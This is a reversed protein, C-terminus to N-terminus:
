FFDQGLLPVDKGPPAVILNESSSDSGLANLESPSLVRIGSEPPPPALYQASPSAAADDSEQRTRPPPEVSPSSSRYVEGSGSASGPAATEEAASEEVIYEQESEPTASVSTPQSDDGIVVEAGSISEMTQPNTEAYNMQVEPQHPAGEPNDDTIVIQGPEPEVFLDSRYEFTETQAPPAANEVVATEENGSQVTEMVEVPVHLAPGGGAVSAAAAEDTEVLADAAVEASGATLGPEAFDGTAASDQANNAANSQQQHMTEDMGSPMAAYPDATTSAAGSSGTSQLLPQTPSESYLDSTEQGNEVMPSDAIVSESPITWDSDDQVAGPVIGSFSAGSGADPSDTMVTTPVQSALSTATTQTEASANFSDGFLPPLPLSIGLPQPLITQPESAAPREAVPAQVTQAQAPPAATEGGAVAFSDSSAFTDYDVGASTTSPESIAPAASPMPSPTEPEYAPAWGPVEAFTSAPTSAPTPQNRMRDPDSSWTRLGSTGTEAFDADSPQSLSDPIAIVASASASSDLTTPSGTSWAPLAGASGGWPSSAASSATTTTAGLGPVALTAASSATEGPLPATPIEASNAVIGWAAMIDAQNTATEAPFDAIPASASAPSVAVATSPFLAKNQAYWSSWRQGDLGFDQGTLRQLSARATETEDVAIQDPGLMMVGVLFDVAEPYDALAALVTKRVAPDTRCANQLDIASNSDHFKALALAAERRVVPDPDGALAKELASRGALAPRGIEGLAWAAALRNVTEQNIALIQGVTGAAGTLKAYGILRIYGDLPNVQRQLAQDAAFIAQQDNLLYLAHAANKRVDPTPDTLLNRIAGISDTDGLRGLILAAAARNGPNTEALRNRVQPLAADRNAVFWALANERTEPSGGSVATLGNSIRDASITSSVDASQDVSASLMEKIVNEGVGNENLQIIARTSLDYVGQSAHIKAIIVDPAIGARAMEIIDNNSLVEGASVGAAGACAFVLTMLVALMTKNNKM